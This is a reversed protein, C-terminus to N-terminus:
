CHRCVEDLLVPPGDVLETWDDEHGESPPNIEQETVTKSVHPKTYDHTRTHIGLAHPHVCLQLRHINRFVCVSVHPCCHRCVEALSVPPGDLSETGDDEHGAPTPHIEQPCERLLMDVCRDRTRKGTLCLSHLCYLRNSEVFVKATEPARFFCKCCSRLLKQWCSLVKPLPTCITLSLTLPRCKHLGRPKFM